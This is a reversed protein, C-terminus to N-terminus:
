DSAQPSRRDRAPSSQRGVLARWEEPLMVELLDDVAVLGVLRLDADLVPLLTLNFDTMTLAIEPIDAGARVGTPTSRLAGGIAEEAQRRLLESLQFAGLLRRDADVVYVTGVMGPPVRSARVEDLAQGVTCDAAVALFDTSM